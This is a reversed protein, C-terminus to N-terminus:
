PTRALLTSPLTPAEASFVGLDLSKHAAYRSASTEAVGFSVSILVAITAASFAWEPRLLTAMLMDWVSERVQANKRSRIERWVNQQFNAPLEPIRRAALKKLADQLNDSEM